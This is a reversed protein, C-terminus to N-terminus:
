HNLRRKTDKSVDFENEFTGSRGLDLYIADWMAALM